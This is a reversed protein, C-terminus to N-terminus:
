AVHPPQIYIDCERTNAWWTWHRYVLSAPAWKLGSGALRQHFLRRSWVLQLKWKNLLLVSLDLLWLYGPSLSPSHSFSLFRRFPLSRPRSRWVNITKHTYKKRKMLVASSGRTLAQIWWHMEPLQWQTTAKLILQVGSGWEDCIHHIEACVTYVCMCTCVDVTNGGSGRM